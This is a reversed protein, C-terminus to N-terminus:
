AKSSSDKPDVKKGIRLKEIAVRDLDELDKRLTLLQKWLRLAQVGSTTSTLDEKSLRNEAEVVSLTMEKGLQLIKENFNSDKLHNLSDQLKNVLERIASDSIDEKALEQISQNVNLIAKNLDDFSVTM